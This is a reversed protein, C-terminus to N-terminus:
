KGFVINKIEECNKAVYNAGNVIMEDVNGFGFTVAISPVGAERAGIIDFKTDGVMVPKECGHVKLAHFAKEIIDKKGADLKDSEAGVIVDFYKELDCTKAIHDMFVQPKSTAVGTRIGAERLSLLLDEMGDYLRFKYYGSVSYKARYHIIMMEIQEDTAEPFHNRFGESIPPGIFSDMEDPSPQPFGEMRIGYRIGEFIGESTDAVTGDFDLLVCDFKAM